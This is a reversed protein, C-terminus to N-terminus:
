PRSVPIQPLVVQRGSLKLNQRIVCDIVKPYLRHEVRHIKKSLSEFTDKLGIKVVEQAIIAGEDMGESVFHVSVGTIKVGYDFADKIGHVGKFSPLLAPHINIIKNPYQKIFYPSLLRMFGALVVLDIKNEKLYQIVKKDFSKRDSFDLPNIYVSAIGAKKARELAFAQAKDSIVLKLNAKIKKQKVADIIAQLNGGYGSALVAFNKM